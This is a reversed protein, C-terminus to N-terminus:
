AETNSQEETSPTEERVQEPAVPEALVPSPTLGFMWAVAQEVREAEKGDSPEDDPPPSVALVQRV